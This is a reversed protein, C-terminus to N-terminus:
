GGIDGASATVFHEPAFRPVPPYEIRDGVYVTDGVRLAQANVFGIIDGPEAHDVSTTERGFVAQAFALTGVSLSFGTLKFALWQQSTAQLWTATLSVLQGAFYLQYNRSLLARCANPWRTKRNSM